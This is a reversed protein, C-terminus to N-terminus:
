AAAPIPFELAIEIFRVASNPRVQIRVRLLGQDLEDQTPEVSIVKFKQPESLGRPFLYSNNRLFSLIAQAVRGQTEPSQNEWIFARLGPELSAKIFQLTRIVQILQEQATFSPSTGSDATYGGFIVNGAGAFSQIRNIFNKRLDEAHLRESIRLSLGQIGAIGAFQQGAPAHSVGGIAVQASIRAMVGAAHGVPDVAVISGPTATSSRDLVNLNNFYWAAVKSPNNIVLEKYKVASPIKIFLADEASLASPNSAVTITDAGDNVAVIVSVYSQAANMVLMGPTVDSLDATGGAVVDELTLVYPGSGSTSVFFSATVEEDKIAHQIQKPPALLSFSTSLASGFDARVTETYDILAGHVLYAMELPLGPVMVLMADDLSDLARLGTEDTASGLYDAVEADEGVNVIIAESGEGANDFWGQVHYYGDHAIDDAGGFAAEFEAMTRVRTPANVPAGVLETSILFAATSIGAGPVPVTGLPQPIVEVREPGVNTNILAM